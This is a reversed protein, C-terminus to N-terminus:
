RGEEKIFEKLMRVDVEITNDIGLQNEHYDKNAKTPNLFSSGAMHRTINFNRKETERGLACNFVTINGRNKFRNKISESLSPIPEFALITPEKYLNSFIEVVSGTNAGIDLILPSDTKIIRKLDHFRSRVAM